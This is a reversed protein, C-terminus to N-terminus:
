LWTQLQSTMPEPLDAIKGAFYRETHSIRDDIPLDAAALVDLTSQVNGSYRPLQQVDTARIKM